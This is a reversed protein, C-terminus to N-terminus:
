LIAMLIALFTLASMFISASFSEDNSEGESDGGSEANENQFTVEPFTIQVGLVESEQLLRRSEQLITTLRFKLSGIFMVLCKVFIEGKACNPKCSNECIDTIDVQTESNSNPSYTLLMQTMELRYQKGLNNTAELNFCITDGYKMTTTIPTKCDNLYFRSTYPIDTTISCDCGTIILPGGNVVYSITTKRPIRITVRNYYYLASSTQMDSKYELGIQCQRYFYDDSTGMDICGNSVLTDVMSFKSRFGIKNTPDDREFEVLEIKTNKTSDRLDVRYGDVTFGNMTSEFAQHSTKVVANQGDITCEVGILLKSIYKVLEAECSIPNGSPCNSTHVRITKASVACLLSLLLIVKLM